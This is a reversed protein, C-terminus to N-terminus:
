GNKTVQEAIDRHPNGHLLSDVRDALQYSFLRRYPLIFVFGRCSTTKGRASFLCPLVYGSPYMEDGTTERGGGGQCGGEAEPGLLSLTPAATHINM